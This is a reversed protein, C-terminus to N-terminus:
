GIVILVAVVDRRVIKLYGSSTQVSDEEASEAITGDRVV